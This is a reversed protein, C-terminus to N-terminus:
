NKGRRIKSNLIRRVRFKKLSDRLGTLKMVTAVGCIPRRLVAVKQDDRRDKRPGRRSLRVPSCNKPTSSHPGLLRLKNSTMASGLLHEANVHRYSSKSHFSQLPSKRGLERTTRDYVYKHSRTLPREIDGHSSSRVVLFLTFSM